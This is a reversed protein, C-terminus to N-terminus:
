YMADIVKQHKEETTKRKLKLTATLEGSKIRRGVESLTLYHLGSM